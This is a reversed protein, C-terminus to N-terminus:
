TLTAPSMAPYSFTFTTGSSLKLSEALFLASSVAVTFWSL